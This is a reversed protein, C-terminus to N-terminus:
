VLPLFQSLSVGWNRDPCPASEEGWQFLQAQDDDILLMIRCVLVLFPKTVVRPGQSRQSGLVGVTRQDEARRGGGDFCTVADFHSLDM